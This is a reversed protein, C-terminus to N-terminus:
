TTEKKCSFKSPEKYTKSFFGQDYTDNAAKNKLIKIKKIPNNVVYFDKTKFIDLKGSKKRKHIM